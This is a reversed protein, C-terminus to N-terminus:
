CTCAHIYVMGLAILQKLLYVQATLREKLAAVVAGISDASVEERPAVGSEGGEGGEGGGQAATDVGCVRQVWKYPFGHQRVALSFVDGGLRRIHSTVASSPSTRGTDADFLCHLLASKDLHASLQAETLSEISLSSVGACVASFHPLYSLVVEM